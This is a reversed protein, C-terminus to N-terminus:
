KKVVFCDYGAQKLTNCLTGTDAAKAFPGIHVQYFTGMNGLVKENVRAARQGISSAYSAKIRAAVSEAQDRSRM